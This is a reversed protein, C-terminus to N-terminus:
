REPPALPDAACTSLGGQAEAELLSMILILHPFGRGFLM